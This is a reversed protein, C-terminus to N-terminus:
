KQIQIITFRLINTQAKTFVYVCQVVTDVESQLDCYFLLYMFIYKNDEDIYIYVSTSPRITSYEFM